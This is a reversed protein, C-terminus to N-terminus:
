GFAILQGSCVLWIGILYWGFRLWAPVWPCGFAGLCCGSLVVVCGSFAGLFCRFLRGCADLFCRLLM